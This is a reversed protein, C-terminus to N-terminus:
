VVATSLKIARTLERGVREILDEGTVDGNVIVTINTGGFGGAGSRSLPIVAEPGSEGIMALTPSNVIGGEAFPKVMGLTLGGVISNGVAGAAKRAWSWATQAMQSMKDFNSILWNIPEYLGKMNNGMAVFAPNLFNLIATEWQVIKTVVSVALLILSTIVAIIAKLAVLLVGAIVTALFEFVPTLPKMAEFLALLAPGLQESIVKWIQDFSEKLQQGLRTKEEFRRALESSNKILDQFWSSLRELTPIAALVTDRFGEIKKMMPPLQNQIIDILIAVIVKGWDLLPAGATRMFNEWADKLNSVMGSFTKSQKDMLNNFRGGEGTLSALAAQVAPFGIAGASVMKQIKSVPKNMQKALADLLPVGAETFQRLEMGTLKTAAKVQGFAMILNPLKDMGVGSAIDGLSKLNPLIEKQQFGYALLQKSAQELGKLEFPTTSAFKVLDEIFSDAKQVSGLMTTFAIKTQEAGAAANLAFGEFTVFAAGAALTGKALLGAADGLLGFKKKTGGLQEEIKTLNKTMEDKLRIIVDLEANAM